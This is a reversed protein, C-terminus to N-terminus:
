NKDGLIVIKKNQKKAYELARYAGGHNREVYFIVLDSRDIMEMNRIQIAAKYHSKASKECIEIEDYYDEFYEMNGTYESTAYPLVLVHYIGQNGKRKKIDRIITSVFRDFEGNRGVLFEVTDNKALVDEIIEAVKDQYVIHGDFDRHGFFCVTYSKFM